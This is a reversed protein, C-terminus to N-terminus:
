MEGEIVCCQYANRKLIIFVDLCLVYNECWEDIDCINGSAHKYGIVGM